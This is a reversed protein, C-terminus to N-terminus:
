NKNVKNMKRKKDISLRAIKLGLELKLKIDNCRNIRGNQNKDLKMLISDLKIFKYGLLIVEIKLSRVRRAKSTMNFLEM